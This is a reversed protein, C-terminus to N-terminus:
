NMLFTPLPRKANGVKTLLRLKSNIETSDSNVDRLISVYQGKVANNIDLPDLGCNRWLREVTGEDIEQSSVGLGLFLEGTRQRGGSGGPM